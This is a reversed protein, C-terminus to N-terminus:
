VVQQFRGAFCRPCSRTKGPTGATLVRYGLRELMKQTMELIMPADEVVLVTEGSGRPIDTVSEKLDAAVQSSHRPLYIRFTTGKGPPPENFARYCLPHKDIDVHPFWTRMQQNLELIEIDPSILSVGIGISDVISRFKEQSQRLAEETTRRAAESRYMAEYYKRKEGQWAALGSVIAIGSLGALLVLILVSRFRWEAYAEAADMKAVMFWGSDAVHRLVSEVEVARYDKGTAVGQRGLVAMVEPAETHNLPIRMKLASDPQQRSDNLFLVDEGDRMVLLIDEYHYHKQLSRFLTLLEGANGDRFDSLFRAVSRVTSPSEQLVGADGLREERWAVIQDTKLRATEALNTEVAERMTLEQTHYFWAGGSLLALLTVLLVTKSWHSFMDKGQRM